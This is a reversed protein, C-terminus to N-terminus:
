KRTTQNGASPEMNNIKNVENINRKVSNIERSLYNSTEQAASKEKEASELPKQKVRWWAFVLGFTIFSTLLM